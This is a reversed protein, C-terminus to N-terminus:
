NKVFYRVFLEDLLLVQQPTMKWSLATILDKIQGQKRAGCIAATVGQRALIWQIAIESLPRGKLEDSLSVAELLSLTRSLKPEKFFDSKTRRWDSAPLADIWEKSVKGTLLGTQLPSYVIM